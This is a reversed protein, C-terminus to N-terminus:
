AASKLEKMWAVMKKATGKDMADIADPITTQPLELEWLKLKLLEPDIGSLLTAMRGAQEDTLRESATGAGSVGETGNPSTLTPPPVVQAESPTESPRARNSVRRIGAEARDGADVVDADLWDVTDIFAARAEDMGAYSASKVLEAAVKQSAMRRIEASRRVDEAM